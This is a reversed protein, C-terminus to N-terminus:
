GATMFKYQVGPNETPYEVTLRTTIVRFFGTLLTPHIRRHSANIVFENAKVYVRYCNQLHKVYKELLGQHPEYLEGM